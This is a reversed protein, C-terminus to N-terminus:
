QPNQKDWESIQLTVSKDFTKSELYYDMWKLLPCMITNIKKNEYLEYEIYGIYLMLDNYLIIGKDKLADVYESNSIPFLFSNIVTNYNEKEIIKKEIHQQYLFQKLIDKYGPEGKLSGNYSLKYYKADFLFFTEITKNETIIDPILESSSNYKKGFIIWKPEPFL